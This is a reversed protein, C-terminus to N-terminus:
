KQVFLFDRPPLSGYTFPQQRRNTAQVVDDRVFDFVRRIDVNPMALRRALAEAFPSNAGEGDLAEQGDRAAFVTYEGAESETPPVLGRGISRSSITRSMQRLFPNTRCMDLIVLRLSKSGGIASYIKGVDVAEIDIDRDAKLRVDVPLMFNTGGFSVGHGSYYVVSWDAKDAIDSFERIAALMQAQTLDYKVLVQQFGTSRLSKAILDADNKPNQLPAQAQYRTNGIILAVRLGQESIALSPVVNTSTKQLDPPHAIPNSLAAVIKELRQLASRGENEIRNPTADGKRWYERMDSLANVFDGKAEYARARNFHPRGSNPDLGISVTFDRIAQDYEGLERHAVGRNNYSAVHTPNIRIAEDCATIAARGSENHCRLALSTSNAAMTTNQHGSHVTHSSVSYSPALDVSPQPREVLQRSPALDQGRNVDVWPVPAARLFSSNQWLGAQMVSGDPGYLIGLGNFNANEWFGVYTNGNVNRFTGFGSVRGNKFEGDYSGARNTFRGICGDWLARNSGVCSPLSGQGRAVPGWTSEILGIAIFFLFYRLIMSAAKQGSHAM